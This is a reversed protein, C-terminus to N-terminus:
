EPLKVIRFDDFRIWHEADAPALGPSALLVISFTVHRLM